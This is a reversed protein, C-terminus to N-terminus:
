QIVLRNSDLKYSYDPLQFTSKESNREICLFKIKENMLASSANQCNTKDISNNLIRKQYDAEILTLRNEEKMIYAPNVGTNKLILIKKQYESKFNQFNFNTNNKKNDKLLLNTPIDAQIYLSSISILLAIFYTLTKNM